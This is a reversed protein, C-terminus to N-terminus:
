GTIAPANFCMASIRMHSVNAVLAGDQSTPFDLALIVEKNRLYAAGSVNYAVGASQSILVCNVPCSIRSYKDGILCTNDNLTFLLWAGGKGLAVDVATPFDIETETVQTGSSVYNISLSASGNNITSMAQITALASGNNSISVTPNANYTVDCTGHLLADAVNYGIMMSGKINPHHGNGFLSYLHLSYEVNNLYTCKNAKSALIYNELTIGAEWFGFSANNFWGICGVSITANVYVGKVYACIEELATNIKTYSAGLDNCGGCIVIDTIETKNNIISENNKLIQFFTNNQPTFGAGAKFLKYAYESNITIGLKECCYEIWTNGEYELAGTGNDGYSDTIFIYKRNFIKNQNNTLAAMNTTISEVDDNTKKLKVNTANLEERIRNIETNLEGFLEKNIINSLTGNDILEQIAESVKKDIEDQTVNVIPIIENIKQVCKGVLEYFSLADDYVLPLVVYTKFRIEDIM